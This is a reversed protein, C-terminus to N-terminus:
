FRNITSLTIQFIFIHDNKQSVTYFTVTVHGRASENTSAAAHLAPAAATSATIRLTVFHAATSSVRQMELRECHFRKANQAQRDAVKNM